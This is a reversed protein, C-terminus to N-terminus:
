TFLADLESETLNGDLHFVFADLEADRERKGIRFEVPDNVDSATVEFTGGTEWAYFGDSSISETIDPDVGFDGPTYLSDSGGSFGRARYYATYTGTESFQLDYTLLADHTGPQDVRNGDPAVLTNGGLADATQLVSWTDGDNNPDLASTFEDSEIAVCSCAPPDNVITMWYNGVDGAVFPKLSIPEASFEDAGVDFVADRPQGDIDEGETVGTYDGSSGDIAPSTSDPRWLGDAALVLQPDVVTIGPDGAKPGLSDGFAINGEWTWGSGETGEFLPDQSSFILNNAITVDEALLTRDSSGFGHDFTIAAGNVDVITNHAIVADKVQFYENAASNAVAASISIAGDARGDLGEFYNNVITQNEGIVRVGGAGDKGKGLFFNGQVLNNDGHRLTLTGSSNRFTNYRFINDGSKNSIIEIEGDLEEFLNSEVTTFSSSLSEQSTGIRITEFGNGNGEPRNAFHNNDILHFDADSSDRWVTVTVGSHNQGSFSNHDVRNNQGYLSVWFYRTDISSPNYDTIASNTLRSNTAEGCSGRFEVVHDGAGLAGGDFNLGDAVLWDGSINLSSSGDLIVQGPTQARLTVPREETGSTCLHIQQNTWNGDQLTITDGPQVSSMIDDIEAASQVFFDTGPTPATILPIAFFGTLSNRVIGVDVSNVRRDRNFDFNNEVDQLFFGSLSNRVRGIDVSNVRAHIESDGTEAIENGFYFVHNSELGTTQNAIVTVQLYDDVVSGNPLVITIRDSGDVGEAPRVSVNPRITLREYDGLDDGAGIKLDIDNPSFSAPDSLHADVIIGNIGHIYSTYHSFDATQGPRLAFKDTAIANDDDANAAPDNGDFASDNYFVYEGVVGEAAQRSPLQDTAIANEDDVNAALNKVDFASGNDIKNREVVGEASDLRRSAYCIQNELDITYDFGQSANTLLATLLQRPELREFPLVNPTQRRSGAKRTAM